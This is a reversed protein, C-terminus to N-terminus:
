KELAKLVSQLNYRVASGIQICPIKKKKKWTLVTQESIKLYKALEGSTMPSNSLGIDVPKQMNSMEDRVAQRIQEMLDNLPIQSLILNDM